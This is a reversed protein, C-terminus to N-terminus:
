NAPVDAVEEGAQPRDIGLRAKLKPIEARIMERSVKGAGVVKLDRSCAVNLLIRILAHARGTTLASVRRRKFRREVFDERFEDTWSLYGFLKDVAFIQEATALHIVEAVAPQVSAPKVPPTYGALTPQMERRRLEDLVRGLQADSLSRMSSVPRRLNLVDNIFAIREDREQDKDHHLDPRLKHWLVHVAALMRTRAPQSNRRDDHRRAHHAVAM